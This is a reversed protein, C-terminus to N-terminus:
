LHPLGLKSLNQSSAQSKQLPLHFFQSKFKPLTCEPHTSWGAWLNGVQPNLRLEQRAELRPALRRTLRPVTSVRVTGGRQSLLLFLIFRM